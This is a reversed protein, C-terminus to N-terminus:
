FDDEFDFCDLAEIVDVPGLEVVVEFSGTEFETEEDVESIWFIEDVFADDVLGRLLECGVWILAILGSGGM